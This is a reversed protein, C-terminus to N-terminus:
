RWWNLLLLLLMMMEVGGGRGVEGGTGSEIACGVDVAGGEGAFGGELGVAGDGGCGGERWVEFTGVGGGVGEGGEIEVGCGARGEFDVARADFSERGSRGSSCDDGDM